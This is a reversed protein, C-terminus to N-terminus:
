TAAFRETTDSRQGVVRVGKWSRRGPNSFVSCIAATTEELLLASSVLAFAVMALSWPFRSQSSSLILGLSHTPHWVEEWRRSRRERAERLM